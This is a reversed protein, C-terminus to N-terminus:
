GSRRATVIFQRPPRTIAVDEFGSRRLVRRVGAETQYSEIRSRRLPYRVQVGCLHLAATNLLRYIEFVAGRPHGLAQRWSFTALPHLTLWLRGGPRLLRAAESLTAPIHMYPLAVRSFIFDFSANRFPLQEGSAQVLLAPVGLRRGLRLAELDCDVGVAKQSSRACALLTQGAGCGIDLIWQASEPIDPLCRRLDDQARALALEALHYEPPNTAM